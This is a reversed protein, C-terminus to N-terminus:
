GGGGRRAAARPKREGDGKGGRRPTPEGRGGRTPKMPDSVGAGPGAMFMDASAGVTGAAPVGIASGLTRANEYRKVIGPATASTPIAPYEYQRVRSRNLRQIPIPATTTAGPPERARSLM